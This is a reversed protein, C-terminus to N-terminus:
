IARLSYLACATLSSESWVARIRLGIQIKASRVFLNQRGSAWVATTEASRDLDTGINCNM